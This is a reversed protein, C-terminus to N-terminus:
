HVSDTSRGDSTLVFSVGQSHVVPPLRIPPPQAIPTHIQYDHSHSSGRSFHGSSSPAM